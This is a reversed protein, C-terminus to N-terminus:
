KDLLNDIIWRIGSSIGNVLLLKTLFDGLYYSINTFITRGLSPLIGSLLSKALGYSYINNVMQKGLIQQLFVKDFAGFKGGYFSVGFTTLGKFGGSLGAMFLGKWTFQLDDRLLYEVSYSAIGAMVGIGVSIGLATGTSIFSVMGISAMGAVGGIATIAGMAGGMIAGGIIAGFLGWGRAGENYAKIGNTTGGIAAGVLIATIFLWLVFYGNEDTENVPNNLCYAYLNLGNLAIQTADLTSIDDANIFRGIEPDYYRSNLYYLNTEFDYYYSRYRFPNKFAIFRNINSTDTVIYGNEVKAYTEDDQLYKTICNGWADYEYCVIQTGDTSYFM